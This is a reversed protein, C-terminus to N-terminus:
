LYESNSWVSGCIKAYVPSSRLDLASASAFIAECEKRAPRISDLGFGLPQHCRRGPESDCGRSGDRLCDVHMVVVFMCSRAVEPSLPTHADEARELRGTDLIVNKDDRRRRVIGNLVVSCKGRGTPVSGSWVM